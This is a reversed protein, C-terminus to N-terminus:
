FRFYIFPNFTESAIFAVSLLLMLILFLFKLTKIGWFLGQLPYRRYIRALGRGLYPAVPFCFFLGLGAAVLFEFTFSQKPFVVQWHGFALLHQRVSGMDEHMFFVWGLGVVLQAYLWGLFPGSRPMKLHEGVRELIIFFGHFLGWIVFNWQAGHWLGTLFFVILLHVYTRFTGKKNGGLPIYLYDRFWTSLSIHWRRWFARISGASFPYNFNELFRFGFMRALGIAMDSYGSFDFYIQLGYAAMLAFALCAHMDAFATQQMVQVHYGLTNALLVKKALGVIFRQIGYKLGQATVVRRLIQAHVDAYRVIPGAILQPFMAIFLAMHVLNHEAPAKNKYIDYQYSISQFTFFSIGLPLHIPAALVVTGGSLNELLFGAYKYYLLLALNFFLSLFFVLAKGPSQQLRGFIYNGVISVVLVALYLTEGWAYFLLSFFLLVPNKWSGPALFYLILALPLFAM